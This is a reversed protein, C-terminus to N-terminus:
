GILRIEGIGGNVEVRVNVKAKDYLDNQWHDGRKELGEIKISGIGGHANAWIGVNQPLRVKAQGVGGSIKVDYDRTPTGTLDLDVQGAGMNVELRRLSVSGIDLNAQGAGCNVLLDLLTKDALQLNWLYHFNGVANTGSPQRLTVTAHVGNYSSSLMPKMSPVNYEVTGELLKHGGGEVRMQGAGMNLEINAREADPADVNVPMSEIPGVPQRRDAECSNLLLLSALFAFIVTILKMPQRLLLVCNAARNNRARRMGFYGKCIYRLAKM